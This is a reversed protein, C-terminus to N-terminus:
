TKPGVKLKNAWWVAIAILGIGIWPVIKTAIMVQQETIVKPPTLQEISPEPHMRAATVGHTEMAYFVRFDEPPVIAQGITGDRFKVLCPGQVVAM